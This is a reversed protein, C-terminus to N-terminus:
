PAPRGPIKTSKLTAVILADDVHEYNQYHQRIPKSDSRSLSIIGDCEHKLAREAAHTIVPVAILLLRPREARIARAAAVEVLGDTCGDNVLIVKRASFIPRDVQAEQFWHDEITKTLKSLQMQQQRVYSPLGEISDDYESSHVTTGASNVVALSTDPAGPAGIAKSSLITLGACLKSAVERAVLIGGRSLAVVITRAPRNDARQNLAEQVARGLMKGANQRDPFM